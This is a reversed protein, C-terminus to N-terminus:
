PIFVFRNGGDPENWASAVDRLPFSRVGIEFPRNAAESFFESISGALDTLSASGFGSGLMELGSSRLVAADLAIKAGASSGIQIYRIRANKQSLGKRAIAELTAEAPAGWLYDLVVDIGADIERRLAAVLDDHPLELSITADAGLSKTKMLAEPNRGCAIVRAAGRRKAIQVALQGAVGTAGLILISEGAVFKARFSLAAWSSMAPNGLAAATADPIADPLPFLFPEKGLTREAMSGFPPRAVGFFVRRGDDLRGVGDLGPIFPLQGTSGYHAGRALSKVIPHLGAALVRIASEGPQPAPDDFSAYRPPSQFSEVLAANM